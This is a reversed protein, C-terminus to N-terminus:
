VAKSMSLLLHLFMRATAENGKYAIQPIDEEQDKPTEPEKLPADNAAPSQLAVNVVSFDPDSYVPNFGMDMAEASLLSEHGPSAFSVFDPAQENPHSQLAISPLLNDLAAGSQAPAFSPQDGVFTAAHAVSLVSQASYPASQAALFKSDHRPKKESSMFSKLIDGFNNIATTVSSVQVQLSEFESRTVEKRKRTCLDPVDDPKQTTSEDEDEEEVTELLRSEEEANM